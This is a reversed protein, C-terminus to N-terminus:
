SVGLHSTFCVEPDILSPTVLSSQCIPCGSLPFSGGQSHIAGDLLSPSPPLLPPLLLFGALM